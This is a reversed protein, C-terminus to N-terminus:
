FLILNNIQNLLFGLDWISVIKHIDTFFKLGSYWEELSIITYYWVSQM